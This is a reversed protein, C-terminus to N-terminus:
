AQPVGERGGDVDRESQLLGLETCGWGSAPERQAAAFGPRRAQDHHVWRPPANPRRPLPAPGARRRGRAQRWRGQAGQAAAAVAGALRSQGAAGRVQGGGGACVSRWSVACCARKDRVSSVQPAHSTGHPRRARGGGQTRQGQQRRGEGRVGAGVHQEGIGQHRWRDHAESVEVERGHGLYAQPLAPGVPRPHTSAAGGSSDVGPGGSEEGGRM